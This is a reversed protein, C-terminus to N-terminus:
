GCCCCSFCGRCCSFSCLVSCPCYFRIALVRDGYVISGRLLSSLWSVVGWCKEGVSVSEELECFSDVGSLLSVVLEELLDSSLQLSIIFSSTADEWSLAFM